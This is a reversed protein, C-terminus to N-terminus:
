LFPIYRITDNDYTTVKFAENYGEVYVTDSNYLKDCGYENTCSRGGRVIPLKISNNQDSMTYYQWKDRNVFLPRGMLPLIKKESGNTPTLIGVQRYSTDVAGINTSVNIAREPVFYREDRLPPTYPNLYVDRGEYPSNTYPYSPLWSFYPNGTTTKREEKVIVQQKVNQKESSRTMMYIVIFLLIAILLLTGNEFCIIGPPCTKRYRSM